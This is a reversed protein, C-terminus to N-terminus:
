GWTDKGQKMLKELLPEMRKLVSERRQRQREALRGAVFGARVSTSQKLFGRIYVDAQRADQHTGLLDQVARARKIFRAAPKGVSWLALEAAYRARKTKIRVHHLQAHGPSPPLRRIAKRLKKFERKALEHLTVTSEVLPPDQAALQLQRVLELYRASKLESLLLEHTRQRQQQLHTVFQMLLKRDRQALDASEKNFYAIQVDLDRAQGLFKSLWSLENHLSESWEPLLIPQATRLLARLRRSAIRLQHLSEPEAGLRTGPDHALLWRVQQALASQLHDIIPAEKAPPHDQAPAPLSLARFLKPRGDHAQAGARRLRRVLDELLDDDAGLREIELERFRQIVRGNKVVSVNDLSIEALSVRGRRILLGTRWVRLTAVSVLRRQELHLLLLDRFAAPPLKQRDVLEVEQRDDCLPLTLQWAIKGREIRYRLTIRAHALDHSATDYYISTLLHRPLLTGSLAPLRFQTDISFKTEREETSTITCRPLHISRPDNSPTM